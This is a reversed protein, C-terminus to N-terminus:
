PDPIRIKKKPAAQPRVVSGQDRIGIEDHESM